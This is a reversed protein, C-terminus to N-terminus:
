APGPGTLTLANGDVRAVEVAQARWETPLEADHRATVGALFLVAGSGAPPVDLVLAGDAVQV